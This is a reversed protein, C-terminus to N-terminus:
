KPFKMTSVVAEIEKLHKEFDQFDASYFVHYIVEKNKSLCSIMLNMQKGDSAVIRYAKHGDITIQKKEKVDYEKTLDSVEKELSAGLVNNIGSFSVRAEDAFTFSVGDFNEPPPDKHKEWAAPYDIRFGFRDNFYSGAFCMGTLLLAFVLSLFVRCTKKKM